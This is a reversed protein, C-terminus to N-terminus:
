GMLNPFSDLLWYIVLSHCTCGGIVQVTALIYSFFPLYLRRNSLCTFLFLCSCYLRRSARHYMLYIARQYKTSHWEHIGGLSKAIFNYLYDWETCKSFNSGIRKVHVNKFNANEIMGITSQSISCSNTKINLIYLFCKMLKLKFFLLAITFSCSSTIDYWIVCIPFLWWSILTTNGLEWLQFCVLPSHLSALKM